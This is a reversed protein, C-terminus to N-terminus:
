RSPWSEIGHNIGSLADASRICLGLSQRYIFRAIIRLVTGMTMKPNTASIATVAYGTELADPWDVVVVEEVVVVVVTWDFEDVDEPSM